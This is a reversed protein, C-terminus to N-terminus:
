ASKFGHRDRHLKMYERNEASIRRLKTYRDLALRERDKQTLSPSILLEGNDNFSILGRDFLRDVHPALLLGNDPDIRQDNDSLTWAHIHSAILLDPNSLGTLSCQSNWMRLLDARFLGQGVRAKVIAERTTETLKRKSPKQDVLKSEFEEILHARELLYAAADPLLRAMYIQNIRGERNFLNPVSRQQYLSIFDSAIDDRHIPTELERLKVDVRNGTNGWESFLRTAPREASYADRTAIAIDTIKKEHYCFIVDGAKVKAVNEWHERRMSAGTESQSAEPAWLFNGSQVEKITKGVNVWYFAMAGARALQEDM